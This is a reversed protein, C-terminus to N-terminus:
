SEDLTEFAETVQDLVEIFAPALDPNDALVQLLVQNLEAFRVASQVQAQQSATVMVRRGDDPSGSRSAYGEDILRLLMASVAPRSLGLHRGLEGATVPEGADVLVGMAQVDTMPMTMKRATRGTYRQVAM